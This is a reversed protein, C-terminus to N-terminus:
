DLCLIITESGQLLSLHFFVVSNKSNNLFFCSSLHPGSPCNKACILSLIISLNCVYPLTIKEKKKSAAGLNELLAKILTSQQQVQQMNGVLCLDLQKANLM